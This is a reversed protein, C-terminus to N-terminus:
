TALNDKKTLYDQKLNIGFSSVSPKEIAYDNPNHVEPSPATPRTTITPNMPASKAVFEVQPMKALFAEKTFIKGASLSASKIMYDAELIVITPAQAFGPNSTWDVKVLQEHLSEMAKPKLAISTLLVKNPFYKGEQDLHKAARALVETFDDVVNGSRGVTILDLFQGHKLFILDFSDEKFVLLLCSDNEDGILRAEALAEPISIQGLADLSLEESIEKVIPKKLDSLEGNELWAYDFVFITEVIDQSDPGLQQLSKDLQTLLDQRDFYTKIESFEQIQIGQGNNSVLSSQLYKDTLLITFFYRKEQDPM